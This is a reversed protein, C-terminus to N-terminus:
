FISEPSLLDWGFWDFLNSAHGIFGQMWLLAGGLAFGVIAVDSWRRLSIYLLFIVVLGMLM